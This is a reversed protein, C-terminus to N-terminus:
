RFGFVCVVIMYVCVQLEVGWGEGRLNGGEWEESKRARTKMNDYSFSTVAGRTKFAFEPRWALLDAMPVRREKKTLPSLQGRKKKNNKEGKKNRAALPPGSRPAKANDAERWGVGDGAM